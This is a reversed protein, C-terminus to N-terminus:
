GTSRCTSRRAGAGRPHPVRGAHKGVRRARRGARGAGHGDAARPLGSPALTDRFPGRRGRRERGTRRRRRSGSVPAARRRQGLAGRRGRGRSRRRGVHSGSRGRFRRGAGQAAPGAPSGPGDLGRPRDGRSAARARRSRGGCRGGRSGRNRRGRARDAPRRVRGGRTRAARVHAHRRPRRIPLDDATLVAVVGPVALAEAADVSVIRAHAAYSLVLRGHLLGAQPLDAGFRVAGRLKPASDERPRAVGIQGPADHLEPESIM